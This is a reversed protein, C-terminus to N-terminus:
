LDRPVNEKRAEARSGREEEGVGRDTPSFVSRKFSCNVLLETM